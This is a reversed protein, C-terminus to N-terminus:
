RGLHAEIEGKKTISSLVFYLYLSIFNFAIFLCANSSIFCMYPCTLVSCVCYGFLMDM